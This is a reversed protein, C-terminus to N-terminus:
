LLIRDIDPDRPEPQDIQNDRKQTHSQKYLQNLKARREFFTQDSQGHVIQGLLKSLTEKERGIRSCLAQIEEILNGASLYQHYSNQVLNKLEHNLSDLEVNLSTRKEILNEIDLTHLLHEFYVQPDFDHSTLDLPNIDPTPNYFRRLLSRSHVPDM